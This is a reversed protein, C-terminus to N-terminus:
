CNPYANKFNTWSPTWAGSTLRLRWYQDGGTGTVGVLLNGTFM